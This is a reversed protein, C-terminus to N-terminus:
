KTKIWIICLIFANERDDRERQEHQGCATAAETQVTCCSFNCLILYIM